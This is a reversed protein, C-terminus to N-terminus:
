FSRKGFAGYIFAFLFNISGVSFDSCITVLGISNVLRVVLDDGRM